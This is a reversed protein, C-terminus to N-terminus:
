HAHEHHHEARDSAKKTDHSTSLLNTQDHPQQHPHPHTHQAYAGSEPIFIAHEHRIELDLGKLMDELVHDPPFRLWREGIQIKVHRNGLHYCARSFTLWDDTSATTVPEQAASVQIITGCSARLLEGVRLPQGRDLFIRVEVGKQTTALIRGKERREHCLVVADTASETNHQPLREYVELM